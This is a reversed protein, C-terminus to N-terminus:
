KKSARVNELFERVGKKAGDSLFLKKFYRKDVEMAERFDEIPALADMAALTEQGAYGLAFIGREMPSLPVFELAPTGFKKGALIQAAFDRVAEMFDNGPLLHDIIHLKEALTADIENRSLLFYAANRFGIKRILRWSAGLALMFGYRIALAGIKITPANKKMAVIFDCLAGIEVAIGYFVGDEIAAVTPKPFERIKRGVAYFYDITEHAADEPSNQIAEMSKLRLGGSFNGNEGVFFLTKVSNDSKYKDLAADILEFGARTLLNGGPGIFAVVGIDGDKYARVEDRM